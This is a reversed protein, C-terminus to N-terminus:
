FASLSSPNKLPTLRCLPVPPQHPSERGAPCFPFATPGTSQDPRLVHPGVNGLWGGLGPMARLLFFHEQTM